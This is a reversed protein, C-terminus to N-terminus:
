RFHNRKWVFCTHIRRSRSWWRMTCPLVTACRATAATATKTSPLPARPSSRRRAAARGCALRYNWPCCRRTPADLPLLVLQHVDTAAHAAWADLVAKAAAADHAFNAEALPSANGAHALAGGMLIVRRVLRPLSPELALALALNTLPSLCLITVQGPAARITSVM